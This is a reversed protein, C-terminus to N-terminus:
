NQRGMPKVASDLRAARQRWKSSPRRAKIGPEGGPLRQRMPTSAPRFRLEDRQVQGDVGKPRKRMREIPVGLRLLLRWWARGSRTRRGASMNSTSSIDGPQRGDDMDRISCM